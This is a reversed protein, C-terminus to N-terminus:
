KKPKNSYFANLFRRSADPRPIYPQPYRTISVASNLHTVTGGYEDTKGRVMFLVSGKPYPEVIPFHRVPPRPRGRKPPAIEKSPCSVCSHSAIDTQEIFDRLEKNLNFVEGWVRVGAFQRHLNKELRFAEPRNGCQILAVITLHDGNTTQLNLMRRNPCQAVGIKVRQSKVARIIYVFHDTNM